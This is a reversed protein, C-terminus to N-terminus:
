RNTGTANPADRADGLADASGEPPLESQSVLPLPRTDQGDAAIPLRVTFTSGLDARTRVLIRGGAAKVIRQSIALGLGTGRQRTTVFPEFLNALVQQPVGPGTDVVRVEVWPRMNGDTDPADRQGTEIRVNGGSETAQLANQILNILVQRLREPDIRVRPLGPALELARTLDVRFAGPDLVQATREVVANVDTLVKDDGHAPNAYDLFSSVVRNLRDAEEVIIDLFERGADGQDAPTESLYQASAKIAGLPNRIEHALGAAMEGMAALRDREKMRQYLRSNEIATVIQNTLGLLLQVEEPSFADRLREDRVCLLGLIDREGTLAVCVSAHMAEMSQEIEHCTEAERDEGRGQHEALERTVVEIVLAPDRKLADLLPRAAAVEVRRIPAPGLHGSLRYGRMDADFLYLAAHTVRRSRELEPLIIDALHEIELVHALRRRLTLVSQELDYRERFFFQSIKEEVKLRVPDYLLLVVLAAAVSHIFFEGGAFSMLLWFVAALTFSLATLVALRGALEYLDLLRLRVISQSLIYLFVLTLVSGVPPIDLGVLPLYDALTFLAALAGMVVLFQLRAREFRSLAKRARAWLLLLAASLLAVLYAFIMAAVVVDGYHPTLVLATLVGGMFLSTRWFLPAGRVEDQVFGRFFGVASLPLLIACVLNVRSWVPGKGIVAVLSRSLYWAAVAFSFGGFSWHVRSKRPRLLVSLGIALAILAALLSAQVRLEV